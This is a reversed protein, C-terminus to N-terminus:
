KKRKELVKTLEQITTQLDNIIMRVVESRDGIDLYNKAMGFQYAPYTHETDVIHTIGDEQVKTKQYWTKHIEFEVDNSLRM